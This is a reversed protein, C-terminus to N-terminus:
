GVVKKEREFKVEVKDGKMERGEVGLLKWRMMDKGRVKGRGRRGKRSKKM